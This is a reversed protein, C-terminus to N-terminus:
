EEDVPLGVPPEAKRSEIRRFTPTEAVGGPMHYMTALEETNLVFHPQKYPSHFWSRRRFADFMFRKKAGVRMGRFDQWPYTVGTTNTPKFGNLDISSYQKVSGIVGGIRSPSFVDKHALYIGRMGVDFPVKSVSRELAEIADKKRPTVNMLSPKADEVDKPMSDKIIKEIEEKAEDEWKDTKEFWAGKKKNEKKHARILIQLWVQEGKELSGLFELTPTMPDIKFEEKPDKDLGYDVYTKIPYPDPKTLKFECGWLKWDDDGEYQLQRTYDPVEHVEVNPYQSYLASEFGKRSGKLIYVFFHVQGEISVLELSHWPRVGGKWYKDIFNAENFTQFLEQIVLEMAMPSKNIEKPLRLELLVWDMKAIFKARVYGVWMKWFLLVLVLSLWFPSALVIFVIAKFFIDAFFVSVLEM